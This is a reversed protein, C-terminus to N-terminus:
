EAQLAEAPDIRMARRAPMWTAALSLLLLLIAVSGLTLPDVPSVEFLMSELAQTLVLAGVLGIGVGFGAMELSDRLVLGAVQGLRAGLAVRLGLEGTRQGVVYSIVGYIGVVSLFLAMGGALGILTLLFSRRAMAPSDAVYQELTEVTGLPVSPDLEELIRRIAPVLAGVQPDGATRVVVTPATTPGWLPAGEVAVLPFFVAETPAADM